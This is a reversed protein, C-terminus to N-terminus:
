HTVANVRELMAAAEVLLTKARRIDAPPLVRMKKITGWVFVIRHGPLFGYLFRM